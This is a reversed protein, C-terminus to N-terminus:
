KMYKAGLGGLEKYLMHYLKSIPIGERCVSDCQGCNVCHPAVHMLRLLHFMNDVPAKGKKVWTEDELM